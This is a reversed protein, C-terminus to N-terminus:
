FSAELGISVRRPFGISALTGDDFVSIEYFEDSVNTVDLFVRTNGISYSAQFDATWYSDVANARLNADDSFYSDSYRGFLSFALQTIPKWIVGAVATVEPSRQFENGAILAGATSNSDYETKSIGIGGQLFWQDSARYRSDIEIGVASADPVNSFVNAFFDPGIEVLTAIQLDSFDSYFINSNIALRDDLLSGRFFLEYNWLKEEQFTERAFTDFNFTFGGANFGREALIGVRIDGSIDYAIEFKPLFESFSEDFDIPIDPVFGGDRNQRDRQWRGGATFHLQSTASWTSEAFVGISERDDTFEGVGLGFGSLNLSEGSETSSIYVGVLGSIRNDPQNIRVITENTLDDSDIAANGTGLPALRRVNVDSFTTVNSLSVADNVAYNVNLVVANARTEFVSFGPNFRELQDFPQDVSDTQPRSTDTHTITLLADLAEIARPRLSLRGRLNVTESTRLDAGVDETVGLPKVFSERERVDASFRYALQGDGMPGSVVGSLQRSDYDGLVARLKGEVADHNPKATEIYVAGAVANRGQTTTQPGRFIEIRDIDWASETSYVYENFTLQRGDVQITTRPQSGGFFSELSTLVGSTNAGRITPGQNGEGSTTVNATQKFVQDLTDPGAFADLDLASTVVVSSATERQSRAVREGTVVVNELIETSGAPPTETANTAISLVMLTTPLMYRCIM